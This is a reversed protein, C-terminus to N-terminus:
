VREELVVALIDCEPVLYDSSKPKTEVCQLLISQEIINTINNLAFKPILNPKINDITIHILFM